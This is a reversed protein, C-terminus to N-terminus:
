INAAEIFAQDIQQETLGLSQALPVLMPHSREIYPAYEWEVKTIDKLIPDQISEISSDVQSLPIGHQILWIRIQRASISEPIVVPSIIWEGQNWIANESPKDPALIYYNAKPNNIDIWRQYLDDDIYTLEYDTTNYYLSM